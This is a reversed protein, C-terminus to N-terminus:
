GFVAEFKYKTQGDIVKGPDTKFIVRGTLGDVRSTRPTLDATFSIEDVMLIQTMM